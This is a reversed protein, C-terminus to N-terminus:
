GTMAVLENFKEAPTHWGLPERPRENLEDAIQDLQSPTVTSFDTSRPLYQRLLGNTNANTGRQWPSHPDGFHVDIDTAVKFDAHAAMEKGRDWTISRRLHEPLEVIKSAIADRVTHAKRDTPLPMLLTFRTTREELSLRVGPM